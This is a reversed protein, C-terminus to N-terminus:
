LSLLNPGRVCLHEQEGRDETVDTAELAVATVGNTPPSPKRKLHTDFRADFITFLLQEYPRMILLCEACKLEAVHKRSNKVPGEDSAQHIQELWADISLSASDDMDDCAQAAEGELCSRRCNLGRNEELSYTSDGDSDSVVLAQSDSSREEAPKEKERMGKSACVRRLVDREVQRAFAFASSTAQTARLWPTGFRQNSSSSLGNVEQPHAGM